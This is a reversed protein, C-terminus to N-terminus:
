RMLPLAREARGSQLIMNDTNGKNAMDYAFSRRPTYLWDEQASLSSFTLEDMGDYSPTFIRVTFLDLWEIWTYKNRTCIRSDVNEM